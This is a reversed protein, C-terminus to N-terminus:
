NDTTRRGNGTKKVEQGVQDGIKRGLCELADPALADPLANYCRPPGYINRPDRSGAPRGTSRRPCGKGSYLFPAFVAELAVDQQPAGTVAAFVYFHAQYNSVERLCKADCLDTCRVNPRAARTENLQIWVVYGTKQTRALEQAATAAIPKPLQTVRMEGLYFLWDAVREALPKANLPQEETAPTKEDPAFAIFVPAGQGRTVADKLIDTPATETPTPADPTKPTQSKRGSQARAALLGGAALVALLFLALKARQTM